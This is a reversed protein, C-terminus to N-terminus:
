LFHSFPPLKEEELHFTNIKLHAKKYNNKLFSWYFNSLFISLTQQPTPFLYVKVIEM